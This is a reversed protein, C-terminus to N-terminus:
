CFGFAPFCTTPEKHLSHQGRAMSQPWFVTLPRGSNPRKPLLSIPSHCLWLSLVSPFCRISGLTILEIIFVCLWTCPHSNSNSARHTGKLTINEWCALPVPNCLHPLPVPAFDFCMSNLMQKQASVSEGELQCCVWPEWSQELTNKTRRNSCVDALQCSSFKFM